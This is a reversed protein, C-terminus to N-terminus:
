KLTSDDNTNYRDAESDGKAGYGCLKCTDHCTCGNISTGDGAEKEAMTLCGELPLAANISGILAVLVTLKM